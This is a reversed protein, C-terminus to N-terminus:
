RHKLAAKNPRKRQQSPSTRPTSSSGVTSMEQALYWYVPLVILILIYKNLYVPLVILILIYKNLYVPLVILILIYKNLYVPLVILILIYKNLYM